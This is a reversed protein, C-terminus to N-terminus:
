RRWKLCRPWQPVERRRHSSAASVPGRGSTFPKATACCRTRRSTSTDRASARTPHAQARPQAREIRGRGVAVLADCAPISTTSSRATRGLVPPVARRQASQGVLQARQAPQGGPLAPARAVCGRSPAGPPARIAGALQFPAVPPPSATAARRHTEQWHAACQPRGPRRPPRQAQESSRCPRAAIGARYARPRACRGGRGGGRIKV